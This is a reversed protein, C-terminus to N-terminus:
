CPPLQVFVCSGFGAARCEQSCLSSSTELICQNTPGNCWYYGPTPGSSEIAEHEAGRPAEQTAPAGEVTADSASSACGMTAVLLGVVSSFLAIRHM